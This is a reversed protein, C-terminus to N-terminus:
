LDVMIAGLEPSEPLPLPIEMLDTHLGQSTMIMALVHSLMAAVFERHEEGSGMLLM